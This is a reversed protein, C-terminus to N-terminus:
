DSPLNVVNECETTDEIQVICEFGQPIRAGTMIKIAFGSELVEKSDDGAFITSNVKVCKSSDSVKVAYGDMSATPFQPDNFRAIIDEALIRGLSSSLAVNEVRNSNVQLLDLMNQSTEYSLLSM